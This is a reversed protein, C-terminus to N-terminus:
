YGMPIVFGDANGKPACVELYSLRNAELSSAVRKVCCKPCLSIPAPNQRLLAASIGKDLTEEFNEGTLGKSELWLCNATQGCDHCKADMKAILSSVDDSIRSDKFAQRWEEVPQFVYCPPGDAPAIVVARGRFSQYDSDL